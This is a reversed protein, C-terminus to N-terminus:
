SQNNQSGVGSVLRRVEASLSVVDFMGQQTPGSKAALALPLSPSVPSSVYIGRKGRTLGLFFEAFGSGDWCLAYAVTEVMDQVVVETVM